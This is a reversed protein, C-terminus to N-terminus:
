NATLGKTGNNIVSVSDTSIELPFSNLDAVDSRFIPWLICGCFLKQPPAADKIDTSFYVEDLIGL